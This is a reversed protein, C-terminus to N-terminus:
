LKPLLTEQYFRCRIGYRDREKQILGSKELRTELEPFPTKFAFSRRIRNVWSSKRVILKFARAIEQDQQLIRLQYEVHERFPSSQHNVNEVLQEWATGQSLEYFARRTLYPHGHFWDFCQGLQMQTLPAGYHEHLEAVQKETFDATNLQRAVNFPSQALDTILLYPEISIVIFVILRSWRPQGIPEGYGSNIWARLLSFFSSRFAVQTLTDAEDFALVLPGDLLSLVHDELISTINLAPELNEDTTLQKLPKHDLNLKSFIRYGIQFLFQKFDMERITSWSQLNFDVIKAQPSSSQVFSVGRNLLSTKGTQRGGKITFARHGNAILSRMETDTERSIYYPDSLLVPGLPTGPVLGSNPDGLELAILYAVLQDIGKRRHDFLIGQSRDIIQEVEELHRKEIFLFYVVVYPFYRRDRCRPDNDETPPDEDWPVLAAPISSHLLAKLAAVPSMKRNELLLIKARFAEVCRWSLLPSRALARTDHFAKLADEVNKCKQQSVSM